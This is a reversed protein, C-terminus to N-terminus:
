FRASLFVRASTTNLEAEGRFGSKTVDAQLDLRTISAGIGFNKTFYYEGGFGVELVSGDVDGVKVKLGRLNATLTINETLYFDGSLTLVPLPLTTSRDINVVPQQADFRYAFNGGYIGLGAAVEMDPNKLFSYRYGLYGIKTEQETSLSTGAPIVTDGITYERETAKSASRKVQDYLGDVRHRSAFRWTGGLLFTSKDSNLGLDRELDIGTGGSTSGDIRVTTEYDNSIAGLRLIITEEGPKPGSQAHGALPIMAVSAFLLGAIRRSPASM